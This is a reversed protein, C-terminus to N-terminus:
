VLCSRTIALVQTYSYPFRVSTLAFGGRVKLDLESDGQEQTLVRGHRFGQQEM